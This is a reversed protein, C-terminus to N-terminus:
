SITQKMIKYDDNHSAPLGNPDEEGVMEEISEFIARAEERERKRQQM